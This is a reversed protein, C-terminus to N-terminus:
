TLEVVVRGAWEWHILLCTVVHELRQVVVRPVVAFPSPKSELHHLLLQDPDSADTAQHDEDVWVAKPPYKALRLDM